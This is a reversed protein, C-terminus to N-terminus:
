LSINVTEIYNNTTWVKLNGTLTSTTIPPVLDQFVPKLNTITEYTGNTDTDVSYQVADNTNQVVKNWDVTYENPQSIVNVQVMYVTGTGTNTPLYNHFNDFLMNYTWTKSSMDLIIMTIIM